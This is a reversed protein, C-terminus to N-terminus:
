PPSVGQRRVRVISGAALAAGGDDFKGQRQAHRRRQQEAHPREADLQAARQLSGLEGAIDGM